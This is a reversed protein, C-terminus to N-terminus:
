HAAPQCVLRCNVTASQRLPAPGGHDVPSEHALWSWGLGGHCRRETKVRGSAVSVCSSVTRREVRLRTGGPRWKTLYWTHALRAGALCADQWCVLVYSSVGPLHKTPPTNHGGDDEAEMLVPTPFVSTLLTDTASATSVPLPPSSALLLALLISPRSRSRQISTVAPSPAPGQAARPSGLKAGLAKYENGLGIRLSLTFSVLFM